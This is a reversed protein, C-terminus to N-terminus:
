LNPTAGTSALPNSGSLCDVVASWVAKHYAVGLNIEEFIKKTINPADNALKDQGSESLLKVVSYSKAAWLREKFRSYIAQGLARAQEANLGIRAKLDDILKQKAMEQTGSWEKVLDAIKIQSAKLSEALTKDLLTISICFAQNLLDHYQTLIDPHDAYKADIYNKADDWAERYEPDGYYIERMKAEPSMPPKPAPSEAQRLNQEVLEKLNVQFRQAFEDVLGKVFPLGSM